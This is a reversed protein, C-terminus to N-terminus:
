NHQCAEPTTFTFYEEKTGEYITIQYLSYEPIKKLNKIQLNPIARRRIGTSALLLILAKAREDCFELLRQIEATTYGRDKNTRVNDGVYM